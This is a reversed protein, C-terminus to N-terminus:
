AVQAASQAKLEDILRKAQVLDAAWHGESFRGYVAQLNILAERERHQGAWLRSLNMTSRLEWLLASQCHALQSAQLMYKEADSRNGQAAALVGRVRLIEASCWHEKNQDSTELEPMWHAADILRGVGIAAECLQACVFIDLTEKKLTRLGETVLRAGADFEGRRAQSLGLICLAYGSDKHVAHIRTQELLEGADREVVGPDPELLYTNTLLSARTVILPVPLGISQAAAIAQEARSRSKDFQGLARLSSALSILADARRDYGTAKVGGLRAAETDLELYRLLHDRSEEFRAAHHKSRGLMWEAMAITGPDQTGSALAACREASRLADASLHARMQGGWLVLYSSFQTSLDGLSEAHELTRSLADATEKTLGSTFQEASALASQIRLQQETTAGDAGICAAAAKAMWTRCDLLLGKSLWVPASYAAIDAGLLPDGGDEFAWRLATRIDDLDTASASFESAVDTRAAARLREYYHLAHARRTAAWEGAGRLKGDAYARTTELLRYRAPAGALDASVLFKVVLGAFAEDVEAAELSGGVVMRASQLTFEGAFVSLRRLV